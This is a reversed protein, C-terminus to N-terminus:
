REVFQQLVKPDNGAMNSIRTAFVKHRNVAVLRLVEDNLGFAANCEPQGLAQVIVQKM